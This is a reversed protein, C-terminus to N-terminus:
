SAVQFLRYIERIKGLAIHLYDSAIHHQLTAM